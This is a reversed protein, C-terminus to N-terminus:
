VENLKTIVKGGVQFLWGPMMNAGLGKGPHQIRYRLLM